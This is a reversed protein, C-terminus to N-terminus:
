EFKKDLKPVLLNHKLVLGVQAAVHVMQVVFELEANVSRVHGVVLLHVHALPRPVLVVGVTCHLEHGNDVVQISRETVNTM